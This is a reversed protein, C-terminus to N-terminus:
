DQHELTFSKLLEVIEIHMTYVNRKFDREVPKPRSSYNKKWQVTLSSLSGGLEKNTKGFHKALESVPYGTPKRAIELLADQADHSISAYYKSFAEEDWGIEAEAEKQQPALLKRIAAIEEPTGKFVENDYYWEM